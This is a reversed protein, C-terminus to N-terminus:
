QGHRRGRECSKRRELREYIIRPTVAEGKKWVSRIAEESYWIGYRGLLVKQVFEAGTM